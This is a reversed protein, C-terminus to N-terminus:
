LGRPGRSFSSPLPLSPAHPPPSMRTVILLGYAVGCFFASTLVWYFTNFLILLSQRGTLPEEEHREARAIKENETMERSSLFTPQTEIESQSEFESGSNIAPSVDGPRSPSLPPSLTPTWQPMFAKLSMCVLGTIALLVLVVDLTAIAGGWCDYPCDAFTTYEVLDHDGRDAGKKKRHSGQSYTGNEVFVAFALSLSMCVCPFSVALGPREPMAELAGGMACLFCTGSGSGVFFYGVMLTILM